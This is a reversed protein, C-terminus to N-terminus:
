STSVDLSFSSTEGVDIRELISFAPSSSALPPASARKVWTSGNSSVSLHNPCKERKEAKRTEGVDIRELISFTAPDGAAKTAALRKVWTSGNSFVSLDIYLSANSVKLHKM